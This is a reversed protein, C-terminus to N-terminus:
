KAEPRFEEIEQPIHSDGCCFEKRSAKRRRHLKQWIVKVEQLESTALNSESNKMIM